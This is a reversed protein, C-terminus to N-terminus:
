RDIERERERKWNIMLQVHMNGTIVILCGKVNFSIVYNLITYLVFNCSGLVDSFYAPVNQVNYVKKLRRTGLFCLQSKQLSNPKYLTRRAIVIIKDPIYANDM